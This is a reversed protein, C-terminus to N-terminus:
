GLGVASDCLATDRAGLRLPPSATTSGACACSITKFHAYLVECGLFHHGPCIAGSWRQAGIFESPKQGHLRYNDSPHGMSQQNRRDRVITLTRLIMGRVEQIAC